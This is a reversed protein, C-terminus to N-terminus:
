KTLVFSGRSSIRLPWAREMQAPLERIHSSTFAVHLPGNGTSDYETGLLGGKRGPALCQENRILETLIQTRM